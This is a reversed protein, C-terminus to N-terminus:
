AAGSPAMAGERDAGSRRPARSLLVRRAIGPAMMAPPPALLNAVDFFRRCVVPDYTAVRHVREMYRSILGHMPPRKGEVKPYRFDEGTAVLWPIDTIKSVRKLFREALRDDGAALCADLAEAEMAAASMGQGYIPNFSCIADGIPLFGAPFREMREYHRRQNAPFRYTAIGGIAKNKTALDFVDPTPLSKAWEMWGAEDAPPYDGLVGALTVVFRDGEAALVAAFRTSKPPTGAVIGGMSNHFDGPHREFVRTSYGVDVKVVTTDPSGFGWSELWKAAQSGRGTADVVLDAELTQEAKTERDTLQVGSVRGKASDFTPASIDVGEIFNVNPIARVRERIAGELCPRSVTIGQLGADHRLKWGGYQYWLFDGVVDGRPAGQAELDDMMGPFYGDMIRYGSALVGHAHNGQPVGKRNESSGPLSDREAITVREFHSSLARAALLGAM